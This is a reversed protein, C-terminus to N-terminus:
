LPVYGSYILSSWGDFCSIQTMSGTKILVKAQSEKPIDLIHAVVSQIVSPYTVVILRNGINSEVLDEIVKAVRVNFDTLSEGDEFDLAAFSPNTPNKDILTKFSKGNLVGCKRVSLENLVEYDQKYVNSLEQASQMCRLSPSCFIKNDRIGRKRIYECIKQIEEHGHETLPPYKESDSIIGEQSHITAGHAVFTIKCKRKLILM